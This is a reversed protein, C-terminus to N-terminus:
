KFTSCALHKEREHPQLKECIDQNLKDAEGQTEVTIGHCYANLKVTEHKSLFFENDDRNHIVVFISATSPLFFRSSVSSLSQNYNVRMLREYKYMNNHKYEAFFYIVGKESLKKIIEVKIPTKFAYEVIAPTKIIISENANGWNYRGFEKNLFGNRSEYLPLQNIRQLGAWHMPRAEYHIRTPIWCGGQSAHSISLLIIITIIKRM